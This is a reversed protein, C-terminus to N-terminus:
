VNSIVEGTLAEYAKAVRSAPAYEYISKGEKCCEKMRVSVPIYTDYIKVSDGYGERLLEMNDRAECTRIDVMAFVIGGVRIDPNIQKRIRGVTQLLKQLGKIPLYSAEVPIIVEDAAALSNITLMGLSPMTDIIIVDYEDRIRDVIQKLVYERSLANVLLVEMGALDINSVIIDVGEDQHNIYLDEPLEEDNLVDGFLETLTEDSEDTERYGLSASADAQPDADIILVKKGERSLGVALNVALASKSTGGKQNVVSIVKGMLKVSKIKPIFIPSGHCNRTTPGFHHAM